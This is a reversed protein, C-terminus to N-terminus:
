EKKLVFKLKANIIKRSEEIDSINSKSFIEILKDACVKTSNFYPKIFKNYLINQTIVLVFYFDSADKMVLYLKYDSNENQLFVNYGNNIKLEGNEITLKFLGKKPVKNLFYYKLENKSETYKKYEDITYEKISKLFDLDEKTIREYSNENNYKIQNKCMTKFILEDM